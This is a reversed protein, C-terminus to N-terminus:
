IKKYKVRREKEVQGTGSMAQKIHHTFVSIFTKQWVTSAELPNGSVALDRM